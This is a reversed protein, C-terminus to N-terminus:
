RAAQAAFAAIRAVTDPTWIDNHDYGALAEFTKPEPAAQFLSRGHSIPIVSDLEGHLFLKPARVRGIRLDSRFSDRVLMRAPLWPYHAQAVAAISDYSSVLVLGAAPREAATNVAVGTGLSRGLVVVPSAPDRAALWDFAALGDQLLGTETPTGNSGPYGRFSLALLGLGDAAFGDGLFDYYVINDANGHLFLVTPRGEAPPRYLAALDEGDATRIRVQEGWPPPGGPDLQQGSAGPYLLSRQLLFLLLVIGAYGIAAILLAWALKPVHSM